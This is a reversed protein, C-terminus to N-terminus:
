SKLGSKQVDQVVRPAPFRWHSQSVFAKSLYHVNWLEGVDGFKWIFFLWKPLWWIKGKVLDYIGCKIYTITFIKCPDWAERHTGTRPPSYPRWGTEHTSNITWVDPWFGGTIWSVRHFMLFFLRWILQNIHGHIEIVMLCYSFIAMDLSSMTMTM